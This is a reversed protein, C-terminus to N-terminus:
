EDEKTAEVTISKDLVFEKEYEELSEEWERRENRCLKREDWM